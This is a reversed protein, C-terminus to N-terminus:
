KSEMPKSQPVDSPGRKVSDFSIPVMFRIKSAHAAKTDKELKGGVIGGIVSISGGKGRTESIEVSVDFEVLQMLRGENFWVKDELASKTIKTLPPNILGPRSESAKGVGDVIDMLAQAVFTKLDM